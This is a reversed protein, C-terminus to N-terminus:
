GAGCSGLDPLLHTQAGQQLKLGFMSSLDLMILHGELSQQAETM